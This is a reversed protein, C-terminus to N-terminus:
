QADLEQLTMGIVTSAARELFVYDLTAPDDQGAGCHYRPNRFNATDTVLVGPYGHLWFSAHDSRAADQLALRKLGGLEVGFALLGVAAGAREFAEVSSLADSDGLATLFNARFSNARARAYVDPLLAEIGPPFRQSGDKDSAFGVGDLSIAVRIRDGRGKAASAHFLSGELGTEERDWFALRLTRGVERSQFFRAAELVAAVGSANDDAGLCDPIHDYHASLIVVETPKKAGAREALVNIGNGEFREETVRWGLSALRERVLARSKEWGPSGPPRIRSLARVDDRLRQGRAPDALTAALDAHPPSASPATASSVVVTATPQVASPASDVASSSKKPPDACGLLVLLTSLLLSRM